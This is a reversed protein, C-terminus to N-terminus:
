AINSASLGNAAELQSASPSRPTATIVPPTFPAFQNTFSDQKRARQATAVSGDMNNDPYDLKKTKKELQTKERKLTPQDSSPDSKSMLAVNYLSGISMRIDVINPRGLWSRDNVDGGKIVTLNSVYGADLQVVGEIVLKVLFPWQYTFDLEGSQVAQKPLTLALLAVLPAVILSGYMEDDNAIPNYLRITLDYQATYASSKWMMPFDIKQGSLLANVVSEAKKQNMAKGLINTMGEKAALGATGVNGLIGGKKSLAELNQPINKGTYYLIEQATDGLIGNELSGLISSQAFQNTYTEGFPAIDQFMVALCGGDGYGKNNSPTVGIPELFELYEKWAPSVKSIELGAETHQQMPSILAIPMTRLIHERMKSNSPANLGPFDNSIAGPWGIIEPLQAM